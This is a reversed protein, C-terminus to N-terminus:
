GANKVAVLCLEPTKLADPVHALDMGRDRVSALAVEAPTEEVIEDRAAAASVSVRRAPGALGGLGALIRQRERETEEEDPGPAALQGLERVAGALVPALAGHMQNVGTTAHRHTRAAADYHVLVAQGPGLEDLPAETNPALAVTEPEDSYLFVRVNCNGLITQVDSLGRHARQALAVASQTGLLVACRFERVKAVFAADNLADTPDTSIVDQFEDACLFTAEDKPMGLGRAYVAAYYRRLAHRAIGAGAEGTAPSFRLVVIRRKDYIWREMDLSAGGPAFFREPLGPSSRFLRLGTRIANMDYTVQERWVRQSARKADAPIVHASAGAIRRALEQEAPALNKSARFANFVGVAFEPENLLRDFAALSFPEGTDRCRRSLVQWADVAQALGSTHFSQNREDAAVHSMFLARFLESVRHADAGALLDVPAATEHPGIELVDADRGHRAAIARVAGAMSGKVDVVLGGFGRSILGDLAPLLVSTTKGSGTTGLVLCIHLLDALGVTEGGDFRLLANPDEHQQAQAQPSAKPTAPFTFGIPRPTYNSVATM